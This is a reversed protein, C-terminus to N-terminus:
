LLSIIGPSAPRLHLQISLPLSITMLHLHNSVITATYILIRGFNSGLCANTLFLRM